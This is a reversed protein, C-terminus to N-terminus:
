LICILMLNICIDIPCNLSIDYNANIFDDNWNMIQKLSQLKLLYGQQKTIRYDAKWIDNKLKGIDYVRQHGMQKDGDHLEYITKIIGLEVGIRRHLSRANPVTILLKGNKSLFKKLFILLFIPNSVHELVHTVLILDFTENYKFSEFYGHIIETNSLNEKFKNILKKSGEIVIQKKAFEDIRKVMLGNGLGLQLIKESELIYPLILKFTAEGRFRQSFRNKENDYWKASNDLNM